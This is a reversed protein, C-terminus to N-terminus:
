SRHVKVLAVCNRGREDRCYRVEDVCQTILYMGFGSEQSGDLAPPSVASPEFPDGLHHLRFSIQNPFAEAELRVWQDTRGHYAHKMINSAAENVALELAGVSDENVPSPLHRCFTRVFERARSLEKLDSRIEIEARALALPPEEIKLAVCTLDDILRGSGSFTVTAKRIAEVLAEPELKGNTTVCSLLRDVGFLEGAFNRAETVGDSYFLLLDGSEFPVSIQNFIEGERIGLPLNDGHVMECLGTESHLHIIGTHGCDVLDLNRKNLDLRAYCLTVFSELNILHRAVEAHALTVIEKPEPLKGNKALATLHSLAEILHSKTAAGLLAAPVGKGMVDGVIIDLRQDPHKFFVYFDGDIRQSPVTLAAVRLGPVDRPPEDLLLTQQIRFGIEAERERAQALEAAAAQERLILEDKLNNAAQLEATRVSVRQELEANLTRVEEEARAREIRTRLATIGFSLDNALETLLSVEEPGFVDPEAAYIMLAGFARSDVLLPIAVSSAYGRKLAEARWPIMKPDTAIRKSLVTQGTRICTGTPGQGRETDAWTINVTALYGAEFGAQAVPRVTKAEDNEARGVWCLRYGAEEVVVDCIQQLLTAEDTSRVLVENCKSLARQAQNVRWLQAEARHREIASGLVNAVAQLFNVEDTTFTRHRRAHAGLVGYPGESTSVVVTVGSVVEHERLLGTGAFRKETELDEVIVPQDSLLTYGAQSDKGLGVTAHGLYGPKWGVGSILLLAERNPLFELIKCFDVELARAVQNASDDLVESLTAGGLARGSLDAVVSQLRALMRIENEALKRATIDYITSRSMLYNGASDTIASASLLVPLTTGDKRVMDYEVDRAVGEEKFKPFNEKFNRASEPTLLDSFKIKGIVDERAYGLWSLETDNIQVLIGEKDLSHYGCPAHNYLDRIEDASRHLAEDARQREIMMGLVNAVAQLFNVEDQTFTRRRKTHAGLVGYPVESTPIVVSMGSVVGHEHLLPPGSFRKETRLDEVIVPQNSLVTYGAQSDAGSRVTAKGVSGEKWGVGSRLLLAKSDPLLELVKCYEVDLNQAVLAVAEDLVEGSQGTRLARQGLEAVVSQLRALLKIEREAQKRETVDQITGRVLVVQGDADREVEGRSTVSRIAGDARVMELDLEYPTGTQVAKQVAADLRASSESTYLRCHETYSPPPLKPDRGAIRCLQESWAGSDSKPSWWWSGVQALRQAERLEEERRHIIGEARRHEADSRDVRYGNWITFGALLSISVVIMLSVGSWESYLGAFFARWGLVGIVFPISVAAPLLRRTLAGGVTSSALLAGLGQETRACLLAVSLLLLTVTTQLAIHTFSIRSGLIFDLLGIIAIIGALFAFFRAPWYRRSRWPVAWDLLLLALGLLLFDLAAIPDLLGPRVSGIADAATGRFLLQDIGLDWGVIYEMLNLAGILATIIALAQGCLKKARPLPLNDKKRLLWLAFGIFVLCITTNPKIVVHGPIVSKLVAIHFTWGLLGLLGVAVSFLSTFGVFRSLGKVVRPDSLAGLPKEAYTGVPRAAAVVGIVNGEDDRYVSANYLVSTVHGDRHRLELASDRVFGERLVQQYAARAKEQETFYESFDTGILEARSRGIAAETAANVDTIKGDPGVTVVPNLSAEILSRNHVSALRAHNRSAEAEAARRKATVSLHGVTSATIFFVALAIWNQPDPITFTYLPPLFFFNLCLMGLLSALVGPGRGWLTAIFLVVLVLALAVNTDSIQDHFPAGIATVAAIGLVASLYGAARTQFFRALM